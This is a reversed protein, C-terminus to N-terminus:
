VEKPDTGYDTRIILLITQMIFMARMAMSRGIMRTNNMATM